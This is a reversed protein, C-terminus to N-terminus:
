GFRKWTLEGAEVPAISRTKEAEGGSGRPLDKDLVNDSWSTSGM